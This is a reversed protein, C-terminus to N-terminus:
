LNVYMKFFHITVNIQFEAAYFYFLVLVSVKQFTYDGKFKGPNFFFTYYTMIIIELDTIM